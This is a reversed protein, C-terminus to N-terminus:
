AVYTREESKWHNPTPRRDKLAEIVADIHPERMSIVLFLPHTILWVAGAGLPSGLLVGVIVGLVLEVGFLTYSVYLLRAPKAVQRFIESNM